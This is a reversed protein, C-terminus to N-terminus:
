VFATVHLLAFPTPKPAQVGNQKCQAAAAPSHAALVSLAYLAVVGDSRVAAKTIGDSLIQGLPKALPATSEALAPSMQLAQASADTTTMPLTQM